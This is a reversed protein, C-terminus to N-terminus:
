WADRSALSDFHYLQRQPIDAIVLTWHGCQSATPERHIPILWCDCDWYMNHQISRGLMASGHEYAASVIDYTSFIAC